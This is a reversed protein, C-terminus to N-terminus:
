PICYYVPLDPQQQKTQNGLNDAAIIFYQVVGPTSGKVPPNLSDALANADLVVKYQGTGIVLMFYLTRWQGVRQGHVVRYYLQVWDVGSPDTVQALITVKNPVCGEPWKISDASRTAQIAPGQTDGQVIQLTRRRENNNENSEVVERGADVIAVTVAEGPNRYNNEKPYICQLTKSQGPALGSVTWACASVHALPDPLWSVGFKGAPANGQNRVTVFVQLDQGIVMPDPQYRLETVVLDPLAVPTPEPVVIEVYFPNGKEGLGFVQGDASRLKFNGRYTGPDQPATLTVSVDVTQGPLVTAPLPVFAPAQMRDGSDFVVGFGAEWPCSGVNKLRWTKTFREGPSMKTGDPVTVDAVFKARLCPLLTPTITPTVGPTPSVLTPLSLPTPTIWAMGLRQMPPKQIAQPEVAHVRIIRSVALGGDVTAEARVGYQGPAPPTWVVEAVYYRSYRREFYLPIEFSSDGPGGISVKGDTPMVDEESQVHVAVEVVQGVYVTVDDGPPSVIRLAGLPAMKVNHINPGCGVLLWLVGSVFLLLWAKGGRM